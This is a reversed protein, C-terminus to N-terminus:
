GDTEIGENFTESETNSLRTKKMTMGPTVVMAAPLKSADAVGILGRAMSPPQLYEVVSVLVFAVMVGLVLGVLLNLIKDPTVPADPRVAADLLKLDYVEYLEGVYEITNGAVANAAFEVAAPEPGAVTILIINTQQLVSARVEYREQAEPPVGLDQYAQQVIALSQAIEAYTNIIVPKDLINLSARVESPDALAATPSVVLSVTAEYSPAQTYTLVITAVIVALFATLALWWWKRLIHLYRRIEM